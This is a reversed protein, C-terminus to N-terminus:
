SEKVAITEVANALREFADVGRELSTSIDKLKIIRKPDDEHDFIDALLRRYERDAENELRNIEVWYDRLSDMSRLRPAAEATLEACRQLVNVQAVVRNPLEGIKYLVILDGAENMYDMCDDMNAALLYLDDRDLPTVFTQNLKRFLKHACADADNEVDHLQGALTKRDAMDANLIQVLIESGRVLCEASETLIDFFSSDHPTVRFRM